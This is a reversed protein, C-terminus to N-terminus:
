AAAGPSDLVVANSGIGVSHVLGFLPETTDLKCQLAVRADTSEPWERAAPASLHPPLQGDGEQLLLPQHCPQRDEQM